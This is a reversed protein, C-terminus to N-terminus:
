PPAVPTAGNIGATTLRDDHGTWRDAYLLWDDVHAATDAKAKQRVWLSWATSVGNMLTNSLGCGQIAGTLATWFSGFGQNLTIVRQMRSYAGWLARTIRPHMGLCRCIGLVADMSLGDYCKVM